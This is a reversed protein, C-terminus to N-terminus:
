LYIIETIIYFQKYKKYDGVLCWMLNIKDNEYFFSMGNHMLKKLNNLIQSTFINENYFYNKINLSFYKTKQDIFPNDCSWIINNYKDVTFALFYKCKMEFRDWKIYLIDNTNNDKIITYKKSIINNFITKNQKWNM